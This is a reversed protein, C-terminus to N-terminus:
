IKQLSESILPMSGNIVPLFASIRNDMVSNKKISIKKGIMYQRISGAVRVSVSLLMMLVAGYPYQMLHFDVTVNAAKLMRRLTGTRIGATYRMVHFTGNSSIKLSTVVKMSIPSPNDANLRNLKATNRSTKAEIVATNKMSATKVPPTM